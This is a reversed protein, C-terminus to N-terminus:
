KGMMKYRGRMVMAKADRRGVEDNSARQSECAPEPFGSTTLPERPGGGDHM